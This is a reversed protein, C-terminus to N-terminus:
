LYENLEVYLGTNSFYEDNKIPNPLNSIRLTTYTEIAGWEVIAKNFITESEKDNNCKRYSIEDFFHNEEFYYIFQEEILLILEELGISEEGQQEVEKQIHREEQGYGQGNTINLEGVRIANKNKPNNEVINQDFIFKTKEDVNAIEYYNEGM